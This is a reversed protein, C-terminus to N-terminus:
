QAVERPIYHACPIELIVREGRVATIQAERLIGSASDDTKLTVYLTFNEDERQWTDGQLEFGDSGLLTEPEESVYLRAALNQVEAVAENCAQAYTTQLYSTAFVELVVTASLAFFLVAIIIEVLLANQRKGNGM